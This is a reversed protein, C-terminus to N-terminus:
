GSSGDDRSDDEWTKFTVDILEGPRASLQRPLAIRVPLGWELVAPDRRHREPILEYQPGIREVRAAIQPSNPLRVRVEVPSDVTPRIRQEQRVYGVIYRGTAAAITVVPDGQRVHQGPWSCVQCITGSIPARIELTEVQLVLEEIASEQMTIEAQIPALLRTVEIHEPAFQEFRKEAVALQSEAEALVATNEDIRRVVQDRLIEEEGCEMKSIANQEALPKLYDLRWEIRKLEVRDVEILAKRDLVDLRRREIDWALRAAERSDDHRRRAQDWATQAEVATLEKELRRVEWQVTRIAAKAPRDDLRAILDDKEVVDFLSWQGRPLAVLLGDTGAAVDIRVAEVEGVANPSLGQRQWLVAALAVCGAFSLVPLLTYRFRRWRQSLPIPIRKLRAM